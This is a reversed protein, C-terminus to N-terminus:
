SVSSGGPGLSGGETTWLKGLDGVGVPGVRWEGRCCRKRASRRRPSGPAPRPPPSGSGGCPRPQQKQPLPADSCPYLFSSEARLGSKPHTHSADLHRRDSFLPRMTHRVATEVQLCSLPCEAPAVRVQSTRLHWGPRRRPGQPPYELERPQAVLWVEANQEEINGSPSPTSASVGPCPVLKNKKVEISCM